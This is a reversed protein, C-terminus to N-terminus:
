FVLNSYQEGVSKKGENSPTARGAINALKDETTQPIDKAATKPAEVFKKVNNLFADFSISGSELQKLYRPPIQDQVEPKTIDFDPNAESFSRLIQKREELEFAEASKASTAQLEQEIGLSAERELINMRNRWAEPDSYKLDELEATQTIQPTVKQKLLDRESLVKLHEQRTKTYGAQTDRRRKEVTDLKELLFGVQNEEPMEAKVSELFSATDYEQTTVKTQTSM